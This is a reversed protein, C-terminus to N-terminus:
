VTWASLWDTWARAGWPAHACQSALTFAACIGSDLVWPQTEIEAAPLLSSDWHALGRTLCDMFVSCLAWSGLGLGLESGGLTVPLVKGPAQSM